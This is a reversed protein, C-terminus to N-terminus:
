FNVAYKLLLQQTFSVRKGLGAVGGPADYDTIQVRVDDDYFVNAILSIQLNKLLTMSLQSNWDV